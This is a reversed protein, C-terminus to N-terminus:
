YKFVMKRYIHKELIAHMCKLFFPLSNKVVTKNRIEDPAEEIVWCGLQPIEDLTSVKAQWGILYPATIWGADKSVEKGLAITDEVHNEEFPLKKTMRSKKLTNLCSKKLPPFLFSNTFHIASVVLWFVLLNFINLATYSLSEMPEKLDGMM